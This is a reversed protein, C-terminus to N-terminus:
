SVKGVAHQKVGRSHPARFLISVARVAVLGLRTTRMDREPECVTRAEGRCLDWFLGGVLLPLQSLPERRLARHKKPFQATVLGM